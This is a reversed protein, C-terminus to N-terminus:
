LSEKLRATKWPYIYSNTNEDTVTVQLYSVTTNTPTTVTAWWSNSTGGEKSYITATYTVATSVTGFRLSVGCSDFAQTATGSTDSFATCNTLLLSTETYYTVGDVSIDSQVEARINTVAVSEPEVADAAMIPYVFVMTFLILWLMMRKM